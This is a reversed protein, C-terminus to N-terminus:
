PEKVRALMRSRRRSLAALGLAFLAFTSPEAVASVGNAVGESVAIRYQSAGAFTPDIYIWPDASADASRAAFSDGVGAILNLVIFDGVDGSFGTTALTGSFSSGSAGCSGNSCVDIEKDPIGGGSSSHVLLSAGASAGDTASVATALQTAILLPVADGVNGGIVQFFYEISANAQASSNIGGGYEAHLTAGAVPSLSLSAQVGPLACQFPDNVYTATGNDVTSCQVFTTPAPLAQSWSPIPLLAASAVAAASLSNLFPDRM